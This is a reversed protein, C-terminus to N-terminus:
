LWRSISGPRSARRRGYTATGVSSAIQKLGSPHTSESFARQMDGTRRREVGDLLGAAALAFAGTCVSAVRRCRSSAEVIRSLTGVSLFPDIRGGIVILTDLVADDLSAAATVMGLSNTVAGEDAALVRVRYAPTKLQDNAAEFACAPGALDLMQFGPSIYFGITNMASNYPLEVKRDYLRPQLNDM